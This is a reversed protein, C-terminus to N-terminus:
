MGPPAREEEREDRQGKEETMTGDSDEQQEGEQGARRNTAEAAVSAGSSGPQVAAKSEGNRDAVVITSGRDATALAKSRDVMTVTSGRDASTTINAIHQSSFSSSGDICFRLLLIIGLTLNHIM